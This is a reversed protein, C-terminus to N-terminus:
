YTVFVSSQRTRLSKEIDTLSQHASHTNPHEEGLVKRYVELAKEYHPSADEHDGMAKLLGGLCYLSHATDPHEEGLV